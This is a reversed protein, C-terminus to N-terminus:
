SCSPGTYSCSSPSLPIPFVGLPSTSPRSIGLVGCLALVVFMLAGVLAGLSWPSSCLVVFVAVGATLLSSMTSITDFLAAAAGFCCSEGEVGGTRKLDSAESNGTMLFPIEEMTLLSRSAAANASASIVSLVLLPPSPPVSLASSAETVREQLETAATHLLM